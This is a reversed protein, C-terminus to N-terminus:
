HQKNINHLYCEITNEMLMAITMPGVGGPVPTIHSAVEKVHEFDVGGWVKGQEDRYLGVDIVIAGPKVMDATILHKRGVAVLLVDASLTHNKLNQTFTHTITVTANERLLLAATPKGVINGRGVVVARKGALDLRAEQLLRMIGKPTCPVICKEGQWLSVVNLPHFGDVDKEQAIAEIVTQECIHMPLPLQVLIADVEPDGNLRQIINLLEPESLSEDYEMLRGELGISECAKIKSRVYIQSDPNNGVLVVALTPRRGNQFFLTRVKDRMSEKLQYSLARGDLIVSM